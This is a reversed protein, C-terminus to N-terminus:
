CLQGKAWERQRQDLYRGCDLKVRVYKPRKVKKTRVLSLKELYTIRKVLSAHFWPQRGLTILWVPQTGHQSSVDASPAHPEPLGTKGLRHAELTFLSQKEEVSPEVTM